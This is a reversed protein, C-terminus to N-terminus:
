LLEVGTDALSDWFDTEHVIAIPHGERRLQMAQEVKRGYCSFAWCSNGNSGIVLYNVTRTMSKAFSGGASEVLQIFKWRSCKASSGTFCFARGQFDVEPCSACVGRIGLESWDVETDTVQHGPEKVFDQFFTMLMKHEDPSIRHDAMVHSVLADIEDYPWCGKLHDHDDIWDRLATLERDNIDADAIIGELLGHLRQLDSTIADYKPNESTFQSTLWLLDDQEESDLYGDSLANTLVPIVESFPHRHEFESVSNIWSELRVLEARNAEGDAT